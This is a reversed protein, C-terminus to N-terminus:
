AEGVATFVTANAISPGLKNLSYLLVLKMSLDWREGGATSSLFRAWNM